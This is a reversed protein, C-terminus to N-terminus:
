ISSVEMSDLDRIGKSKEEKTIIKDTKRSLLSGKADTPRDFAGACLYNHKQAEM